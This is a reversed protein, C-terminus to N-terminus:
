QRALVHFLVNCLQPERPHPGASQRCMSQHVHTGPTAIRVAARKGNRIRVPCGSATEQTDNTSHRVWIGGLGWVVVSPREMQVSCIRTNWIHHNDKIEKSTGLVHALGAELHTQSYLFAELSTLIPFVRGSCPCPWEVPQLGPHFSPSFLLM